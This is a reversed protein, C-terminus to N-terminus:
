TASGRRHYMATMTLAIYYVVLLFKRVGRRTRLQRALVCTCAVTRKQQLNRSLIQELGIIGPQLTFRLDFMTNGRKLRICDSRTLPRPGVLVMDGRMLNWFQPLEDLHSARLFACFRTVHHTKEDMSRFKLILFPLGQYGIREQIFLGAQNPYLIKLLVYVTVSLPVWVPALVLAWVIDTTFVRGASTKRDAAVM